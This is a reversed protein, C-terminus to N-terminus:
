GVVVEVDSQNLARSGGYGKFKVLVQPVEDTPHYRTGLVQGLTGVKVPRGVVESCSIVDDSVLKVIDGKKM